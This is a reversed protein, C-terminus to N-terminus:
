YLGLDRDFESPDIQPQLQPRDMVLMREPPQYRMGQEDCRAAAAASRCAARRTGAGVGPPPPVRGRQVRVRRDRARAPAAGRGAWCPRARPTHTLQPPAHTDTPAPRGNKIVKQSEGLGRVDDGRLGRKYVVVARQGAASCSRVNRMWPEFWFCGWPAQQNPWSNFDPHKSYLKHCMCHRCHKRAIANAGDPFFVCAVSLKQQATVGDLNESDILTSWLMEECGCFSALYFLQSDVQRGPFDLTAFSRGTPGRKPGVSMTRRFDDMEMSSQRPSVLHLDISQQKDVGVSETLTFKQNPGSTSAVTSSRFRARRVDSSSPLRASWRVAAVTSTTTVGLAKSSSVPQNQSRRRQTKGAEGEGTALASGAAPETPPGDAQSDVSSQQGRLASPRGGAGPHCRQQEFSAAMYTMRKSMFTYPNPPRSALLDLVLSQLLTELDHVKLYQQHSAVARDDNSTTMAPAV